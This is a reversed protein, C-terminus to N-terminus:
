EEQKDAGEPTPPIMRDIKLGLADILERQAKGRRISEMIKARKKKKRMLISVNRFAQYIWAFPRLVAHKKAAKWKLLGDAQLRRFFYSKETSLLTIAEIRGDLGAKRGFNGKELVYAKLAEVPLAPGDAYCPRLGLYRQCFVTVTRALTEVGNEALLPQLAAWEEPQLSNVYMMWDVIQRLGLGSRLHQDIHFILVLGNRLTPLTPFRYGEIEHWIRGAIGEEFYNLRDEDSDSILPLRWHIEFEIHDRVYSFHYRSLNKKHALTYGNSELLAAAKELDARKVLYDVDGMTRLSPHPYYMAAAAGKLIVCPIGHQELLELLQQQAYMLRVFQTQKKRCYNRWQTMEPPLLEYPLAAVTQQKMEEFLLSWDAFSINENTLLSAKLVEFITM